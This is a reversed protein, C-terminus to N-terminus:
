GNLAEKEFDEGTYEYLLKFLEYNDERIKNFIMRIYAVPLGKKSDEITSKQRYEWSTIARIFSFFTYGEKRFPVGGDDVNMRYNLLNIFNEYLPSFFGEEYILRIKQRQTCLFICQKTVHPLIDRIVTAEDPAGYAFNYETKELFSTGYESKSIQALEKNDMVGDYRASFFTSLPIDLWRNFVGAREAVLPFKTGLYVKHKTITRVKRAMKDYTSKGDVVDGINYDHLMLVSPKTTIRIQSEFEQWASRGNLSLRCHHAHILTNFMDHEVRYRNQVFYRKLGLYVSTDPACREIEGKLPIYQTQHFARGFCQVNDYKQLEIPFIGDDYDKFFYCKTVKWPELKEMMVVIEKKEKYYRAVKMLNLNFNIKGYTIFDADFLGVIM